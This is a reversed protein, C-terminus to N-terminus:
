TTNTVRTRTPDAGDQRRPDIHTRIQTPHNTRSWGGTATLDTWSPARNNENTNRATDRGVHIRKLATVMHLTPRATM